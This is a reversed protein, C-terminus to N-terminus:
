YKASAWQRISVGIHRMLLPIAGLGYQTLFRVVVGIGDHIRWYGLRIPHPDVNGHNTVIYGLSSLFEGAITEIDVIQRPSYYSKWKGSNSIMKGSEASKNFPDMYRMSSRLVVDQFEIGLFECVQRMVPEPDTTLAEYSVEMYRGAELASGQRMGEIVIHKWRTITHLPEYNWRRHFSQAADRGDRIIHIFQSDKFVGALSLIHQTNIPSKDSWRVKGQQHALHRYLANVVGSFYPESLEEDRLVVNKKNNSQWFYKSRGLTDSLKRRASLTSLDGFNDQHELYYPLVKSEMPLVYLGTHFGLSDALMTTGSGNMGVIFVPGKKTKLNLTQM